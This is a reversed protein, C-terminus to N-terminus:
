PGDTKGDSGDNGDELLEGNVLKRYFCSRHGTHCAANGIQEVKFLVCDLDCDLRIEKIKQLNGSTEGKRWRCNRSRSFYTAYGSEVSELWAARDLYAQMLVEGTRFDQVVAPILPMKGFDPEAPPATRKATNEEPM